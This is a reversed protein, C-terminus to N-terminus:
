GAVVWEPLNVVQRGGLVLAEDFFIKEFNQM